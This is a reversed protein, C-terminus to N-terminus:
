YIPHSPALLCGELQEYRSAWGLLMYTCYIYRPVSALLIPNEGTVFVWSLYWWTLSLTSPRYSGIATNNTISSTVGDMEMWSPVLCWAPPPPSAM